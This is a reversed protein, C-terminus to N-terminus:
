LLKQKLARKRGLWAGALMGCLHGEWSIQEGVSPLVGWIMGGFCVGVVIALLIWKLKKECFGRAMLYGFYGYILGSAGIHVGGAAILWTGGGGILIILLSLVYFQRKEARLVIYGLALFSVSNAALHAYGGHLHPSFLIGLLGEVQRPLIGWQDLQTGFMLQDVIEIGWWIALISLLAGFSFFDQDNQKGRSTKPM